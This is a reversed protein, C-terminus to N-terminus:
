WYDSSKGREFQEFADAYEDIKSKKETEELRDEHRLTPPSKRKEPSIKLFAREEERLAQEDLARRRKRPDDDGGGMKFSQEEFADEWNPYKEKQM